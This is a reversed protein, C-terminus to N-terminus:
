LPGPGRWSQEPCVWGGVLMHLSAPFRPSGRLPHGSRRALEGPHSRRLSTHYTGLPGQPFVSGPFSLDVPRMGAKSKRLRHFGTIGAWGSCHSSFCEHFNVALRSVRRLPYSQYSRYCACFGPNLGWSGSVPRPPECM